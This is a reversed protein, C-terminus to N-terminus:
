LRLEERLRQLVLLFRQQLIRFIFLFSHKFFKDRLFSDRLTQAYLNEPIKRYLFPDTYRYTCSLIRAATSKVSPLCPNGSYQAHIAPLSSLIAPINPPFKESPFDASLVESSYGPSTSASANSVKRNFSQFRYKALVLTLYM